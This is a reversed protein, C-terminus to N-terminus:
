KPAKLSVGAITAKVSALAAPAVSLSRLGAKLLAPVKEPESALNGCISLEIRREAAFRSLGQVLRLLAPLVGDALPAVASSDRAAAALYQLLDNSGISFFDAEYLEPTIAPAPVEVMMGLPPRAAAVGKAQLAALEEEFLRRAEILEDPVTVMPWMVKLRGHVAARALARLQVRFVDPRALSLRLGRVGLFPNSEGEVTLGRIPKDGGIDLTRITVPKEGAWELMKRYILYQTDEDPFAQGDRFLFETRMLGIGDCTAADIRALEDPGEVNILVQAPECDATSAPRHLHQRAVAAQRETAAREFALRELDDSGPSLVVRGATGHVIAERHGELDAAGVGVVMPIGRARALLAVHSTASGCKLVLGGGQSWDTELFLTPSMDDGALIAGAPAACRDVGSLLRLVRDRLDELDAARARFYEDDAGRYATIEADLIRGWAADASIGTAIAELSPECLHEDELLAIQLGIIDAADREASAALAALQEAAREIAQLVAAAEAKPDGGVRRSPRPGDLLVIPGAAIGPSAAQGYLEVPSPM